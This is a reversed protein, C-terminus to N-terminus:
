DNDYFCRWDTGDWLLWLVWKAALVVDSSCEVNAGAGDVTINDAANGNQLALLDGVEGGDAIATAASTTYWATSTIVQYTGTPTITTGATIALTPQVSLNLWTGVDVDASGDISGTVNAGGSSITLADALTLGGTASFDTGAAGINSIANNSMDLVGNFDSTDSVTLTGSIVTNGTTDAVTFATDDVTFGGDFEALGSADLTTFTGAAASAGGIVTGDVTGSDIDANTMNQSDFNIAGTATYAGINTVTLTDTAFTLDGDDTLQGGTTAFPVRGSTLGTAALTAATINTTASVYGSADVNVVSISGAFTIGGTVSLTGAAGVDGDNSVSFVVTSDSQQAEILNTTQTTHGEVELTLKDANGDIVLRTVRSIGLPEICDPCLRELGFLVGFAGALFGAGLCVALCLFMFRKNM